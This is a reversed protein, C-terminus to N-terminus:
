SRKVLEWNDVVNTVSNVAGIVVFTALSGKLGSKISGKYKLGQTLGVIGVFSLATPDAVEAAFSRAVITAICSVKGLINSM